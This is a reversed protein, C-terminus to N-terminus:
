SNNFSPFIGASAICFILAQTPQMNDHPLGQGTLTVANPSFTLNGPPDVFGNFAPNLAVSGNLNPLAFNTTGNGGYNTGILAYLPTFAQLAVLQGFCPLWINNFGGVAFAFPFAQIEGVYPDSM